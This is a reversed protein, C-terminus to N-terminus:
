WSRYYNEYIKGILVIMEDHQLQREMRAYHVEQGLERTAEVLDNIAKVTHTDAKVYVTKTVVATDANDNSSTTSLILAVGAFLVLLFFAKVLLSINKEM